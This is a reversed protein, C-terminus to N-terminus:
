ESLRLDDLTPEQGNVAMELLMDQLEEETAPRAKTNQELAEDQPFEVEVLDAADIVGDTVSETELGTEDSRKQTNAAAQAANFANLIEAKIRGRDGIQFGNTRAWTRIEAQNGKVHSVVKSPAVEVERSAQLYKDLKALHAAFHKRNAEGLEIERQTGTTPDFFTVTEVGNSIREDLSDTLVVTTQTAM